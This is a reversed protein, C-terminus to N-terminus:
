FQPQIMKFITVVRPHAQAEQGVRLVLPGAVPIHHGYYQWDDARHVIKPHLRDHGPAFTVWYTDMRTYPYPSACQNGAAAEQIQNKTWWDYRNADAMLILASGTVLAKLNPQADPTRALESPADPIHTGTASPSVEQALASLSIALSVVFASKLGSARM